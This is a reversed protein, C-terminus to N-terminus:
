PAHPDMRKQRMPDEWASAIAEAHSLIQNLDVTMLRRHQVLLRGAVMLTDVDAGSAAYVVASAPHYIPTLHPKRTDIIILDAQKGPEISGIERELGLARAGDITAMRIVTEAPLV